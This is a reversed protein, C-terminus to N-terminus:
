HKFNPYPRKFLYRFLLYILSYLLHKILQLFSPLAHIIWMPHWLRRRPLIHSLLSRHWIKYRQPLYISTSRALLFNCCIVLVPLNSFIVFQQELTCKMGCERLVLIIDSNIKWISIWQLKESIKVVTSCQGRVNSTM